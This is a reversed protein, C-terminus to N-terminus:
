IKLNQKNYKVRPLSLNHGFEKPRVTTSEDIEQQLMQVEKEEPSPLHEIAQM